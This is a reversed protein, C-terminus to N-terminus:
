VSDIPKDRATTKQMSTVTLIALYSSLIWYGSGLRFYVARQFVYTARDIEQLREGSKNVLYYKGDEGSKKAIGNKIFLPSSYLVFLTYFLIGLFLFFSQFSRFVSLASLVTDQNRNMVEVFCALLVSTYFFHILSNDKPYDVFLTTFFSSFHAFVAYLFTVLLSILGIWRVMQQMFM